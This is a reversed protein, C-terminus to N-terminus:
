EETNLKEELEDILQEIKIEFYDSMFDILEKDDDILTLNLERWTGDGYLKTLTTDKFGKKLFADIEVARRYKEHLNNRRKEMIELGGELKSFINDSRDKM